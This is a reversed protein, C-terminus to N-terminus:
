NNTDLYRKLVQYCYIGNHKVRNFKLSIMAKGVAISSLRITTWKSVENLIDTSTYYEINDKEPQGFHKHILEKEPSPTQFKENRIENNKIDETTLNEDFNKDKSLAYAQAWLNNIDFTQSYSKDISDIVFCLWRVSGTEDNLFTINNTSGVFNAIRQVNVDKAGFPLRLKINTESFLSKLSNADNKSLYSLEDLNIFMNKALAIKADKPDKPLDKQMFNALFPPCLYEMYFTKGVNQGIANDSLIFAQKNYYGDILSCKVSRVCWKKFHYEFDEKNENINLKIYRSYETIYDTTGNWAPLNEFYYKIPNYEEVFDSKLISVVNSKCISIGKKVLDLWISDENCAKWENKNKASVEIDTSTTNFRLNYKNSFHKEITHYKTWKESKEEVVNKNKVALDIIKQFDQATHEQLYDTLDYGKIQNQNPLNLGTIFDYKKIINNQADKGSNNKNNANIDDDYCIFLNECRQQLKTIQETTPNNTASGFTVANFGKSSAILVDKEGECIILNKIKEAPLQELGFVVNKLHPILSKKVNHEPQEPTYKKFLGNIEYAFSVTKDKTRFLKNPEFGSSSISQVKYKELINKNVGLNNWYEIDLITFDRTAVILKKPQLNTAFDNCNQQLSTAVTTTKTNTPIPATKPQLDTISYDTNCNTAVTTAIKTTNTQLMKNKVTTSNSSILNEINMEKAIIQLVDNFQTKVDLKNLYAVFQWVDGQKTSSNCKFTGNPYVKFSPKKDDSFPSSINNKPFDTLGIFKTYIDNCNTHLLIICKSLSIAKMILFKLLGNCRYQM